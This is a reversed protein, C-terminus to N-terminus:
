YVEERNKGDIATGLSIVTKLAEDVPIDLLRVESKQLFLLFGSTPNPTTPVFIALMDPNKVDGSNTFYNDASNTVFGLSWIGKRPYEIMVVQRFSNGTPSFVVHMSQKVAKYISRVLPIRSLINESFSVIKRGVFNAALVGTFFLVAFALIIGFGPINFGFLAEPQLNHPILAVSKDVLDWLFRIVLITVLIPAWVLLGAVLYRKL